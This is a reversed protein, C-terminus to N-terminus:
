IIEPFRKQHIKEQILDDPVFLIRTQMLDLKDSRALMTPSWSDLINSCVIGINGLLMWLQITIPGYRLGQSSRFQKGFPQKADVEQLFWARGCASLCGETATGLDYITPECCGRLWVVIATTHVPGFLDPPVSLSM